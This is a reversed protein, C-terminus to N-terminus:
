ELTDGLLSEAAAIVEAPAIDLLCPSEKQNDNCGQKHCPVCEWDRQIVITNGVRHTGRPIRAQEAIPRENSWPFWYVSPSPGFLVVMPVNQAAALHTVATDLGVYLKASALLCAMQNLSLEGPIVVPKIRCHSVADQLLRVEEAAPSSTWIPQLRYKEAMSDSMAAFGEMRWYKHLGRTFPHVVFYEGSAGKNELTMRVKEQDAIDWYVASKLYEVSIGLSEAVLQCLCARHLNIPNPLSHTFLLRKWFDKRRHPEHFGVRYRRGSFLVAYSGRDSYNLNIAMDYKLFIEWFYREGEELHRNSGVDFRESYIVKRVRPDKELFEGTKRNVLFDIAADPYARKLIDIMSTALIVDGILRLCCILISRPPTDIKRYSAQVMSLTSM